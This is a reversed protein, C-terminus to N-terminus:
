NGWSCLFPPEPLARRAPCGRLHGSFAVRLLSAPFGCNPQKTESRVQGRLVDSLGPRPRPYSSAQFRGGGGAEEGAVQNKEQYWVWARPVFFTLCHGLLGPWTTAGPGHGGRRSQSGFLAESGQHSSGELNLHDGGAGFRRARGPGAGSPALGWGPLAESSGRSM